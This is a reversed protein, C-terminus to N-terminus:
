RRRQGHAADRTPTAAAFCSPVLATGSAIVEDDANLVAWTHSGPTVVIIGDQDPDAATGDILVHLGALDGVIQLRSM